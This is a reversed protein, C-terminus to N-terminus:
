HRLPRRLERLQTVQEELRKVDVAAASSEEKYRTATFQWNEVQAQLEAIQETLRTSDSVQSRLQVNEKTTQRLLRSKDKIKAEGNDKMTKMDTQVKVKCRNFLDTLAELEQEVAYKERAVIELRDAVELYAQKYSNLEVESWTARAKLRSAKSMSILQEQQLSEKMQTVITNTFTWSTRLMEALLERDSREGLVTVGVV